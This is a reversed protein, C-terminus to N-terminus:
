PRGGDYVPSGIQPELHARIARDIMGVVRRYPINGDPEILARAPGRAAGRELIADVGDDNPVKTGDVSATGDEYLRIVIAGEPSTAAPPAEHPDEVHYPPSGAEVYKQLARQVTERARKRAAIVQEAKPGVDHRLIAEDLEEWLPAVATPGLQSADDGTCISPPPSLDRCYDRRCADVLNAFKGVPSIATDVMEEFAHRCRNREHLRACALIMTRNADVNSPQIGRSAAEEWGRAQADAVVAIADVCARVDPAAAKSAGGPSSSRCAQVTFGGSVLVVAFFVAAARHNAVAKAKPAIM